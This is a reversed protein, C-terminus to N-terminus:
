PHFIDGMRSFLRELHALRSEFASVDFAKQTNKNESIKELNSVRDELSSQNSTIIEYESHICSIDDTLYNLRNGLENDITDELQRLSRGVSFLEDEATDLKNELTDVRASVDDVTDNVNHVIVNLDFFESISTRVSSLEEQLSSIKSENISMREEIHTDFLTFSHYEKYTAMQLGLATEFDFSIFFNSLAGKVFVDHEFSDDSQLRPMSAEFASKLEIRFVLWSLTSQSNNQWDFAQTNVISHPLNINKLLTCLLKGCKASKQSASVFDELRPFREHTASSTMAHVYSNEFFDYALNITM